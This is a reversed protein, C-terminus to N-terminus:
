RAPSPNSLDDWRAAYVSSGRIYFLSDNVMV